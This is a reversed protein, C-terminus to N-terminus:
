AGGRRFLSGPEGIAYFYVYGAVTMLMVIAGSGLAWVSVWQAARRYWHPVHADADTINRKRGLGPFAIATILMVTRMPAYVTRTLLALETPRFYPEKWYRELVGRPMLVHMILVMPIVMGTALIMVFYMGFFHVASM